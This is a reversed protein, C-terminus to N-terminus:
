LWCSVPGSFRPSLSQVLFFVTMLHCHLIEKNAYCYISMIQLFSRYFLKIEPKYFSPFIIQQHAILGHQTSLASSNERECWRGNEFTQAFLILSPPSRAAAAPYAGNGRLVDTLSWGGKRNQTGRGRTERRRTRTRMQSWEAAAVCMSM